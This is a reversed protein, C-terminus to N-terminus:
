KKKKADKKDKKKYKRGERKAQEEEAKEDALSDIDFKLENQKPEIKAAFPSNKDQYLKPVPKQQDFSTIAIKYDGAPLGDNPKYTMFLMEGKENTRGPFFAGPMVSQVPYITLQAPGYPQGDMTLVGKVAYVREQKPGKKGCGSLLCAIGAAVLWLGVVRVRTRDLVIRPGTM